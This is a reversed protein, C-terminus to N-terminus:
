FKKEVGLQVLRGLTSGNRYGNSQLTIDQARFAPPDQDFLNNVNLTFALDSALGSGRVDYRLFLDIVNFSAVRTQQPAVGVFPSISYGATHNWAVQARLNGIDAGVTTRVRFRSANNALLDNFQAIQTAQQKRTLDYSGAISLDVSGFGTPRQYNVQFDIGSLKLNGYNGKRSDEIIYVCSPQPACADSVSNTASALVADIQAQTPNVIYNAKFDRFFQDVNTFPAGGILNNYSLNYYTASLRLGPVFPPDLDIGLSWTTATQPKLGPNAGQLIIGFAGPPPGPNGNAVLVASPVLFSFTGGTFFGVTTPDARADDALSPAAFNKGWSGRLKVWDVPKWTLGFRPNFTDGVDSYSDYRGSASLTLEEFGPTANASGFIPVALEAFAAKINRGLNYRPVAAVPAIVVGSVTGGGYGTNQFGPVTDGRQTVFSDNTYEAGVALKVAGGPLELLDGDLVVRANFQRQKTLGLREFNFLAVLTAADSSDPDYPNFTGAPIAANLLTNNVGRSHQETISEGYSALTRLQWNDGLKFTFTPIVGWTKLSVRQNLGDSPGFAYSVNQLEFGGGIAHSFAFPSTLVAPGAFPLTQILTTTKAYGLSQYMQKNTYFARIDVKISDNLQQSLGAFVTHRKFAPYFSAYDTLDCLNPQNLRSAATATTFPLGYIDPSLRVNVNGAGPCEINTVPVALGTNVPYVRNFDRDRGLITSNEAYNYAIYISGGDWAKGATVNADFTHFEDGFGYRAGAEVGNFDDRTIFNIVGAVADSGYIASGGDPVIEVRKIIGPPVIDLDPSTSSIGMGVIRHGDILMLTASSGTTTAGPLNRLNPRNTTVFNGGGVPAQLSNFSGLQPVTQLLQTVTTAGTAKVAEETVGIVNTGGPALGRVLTGTVVIEDEEARADASIDQAFAAGAVLMAPLAVGCHLVKLLRVSLTTNTM